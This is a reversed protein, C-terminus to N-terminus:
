AQNENSSAGRADSWYRHVQGPVFTGRDTVIRTVFKAPTVDFAPYWADTLLESATRRGLTHFVEAPDREEVVIDAATPASEDPAQVLAYFPVDFATAAIALGLTGVKNVVSGDLSVRDAATVLADIQGISSGPSLAAAGMSDTILTVHEGFEALTHATLRAGQLYPRTETAVWDFSKGVERSARVLEILYSDMWCHTLIRAGNELLAATERGLMLSRTRYGAAGSRAAEVVAEVLEGTSAAGVTAALVRQVAERPHNNTPRASQVAEGAEILRSRAATLDLGSIQLATLEMAAYAAFLPGSSQTVMARIASAVDEASGAAVWSLTEPFVRRDLIHVTLGVVRVSDDLAPIRTQGTTM